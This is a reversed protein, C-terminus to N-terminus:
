FPLHDWKWGGCVASSTILAAAMSFRILWRSLRM